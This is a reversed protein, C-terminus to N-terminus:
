ASIREPEVFGFFEALYRNGKRANCTRCVPTLNDREGTGGKTIPLIHDIETAPADECYTCLETSWDISAIWDLSEQTYPTGRRRLEQAQRYLVRGYPTKAYDRRLKRIHEPDILMIEHYRQRGAERIAERNRDRFRAQSALQNARKQEETLLVKAPKPEYKSRQHAKIRERNALYYARDRTKKGARCEDCRCGFYSYGSQSGHRFDSMHSPTQVWLAQAKGHM